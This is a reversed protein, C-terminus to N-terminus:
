ANWIYGDDCIDWGRVPRADSPCSASRVTAPRVTRPVTHPPRADRNLRSLPVPKGVAIPLGPPDCRPARRREILLPSSLHDKM